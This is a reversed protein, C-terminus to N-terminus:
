PRVAPGTAAVQTWAPPAPATLPVDILVPLLAVALGANREPMM